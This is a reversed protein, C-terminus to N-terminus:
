SSSSEEREERSKAMLGDIIIIDDIGNLRLEESSLKMANVIHRMRNCRADHSFSNRSTEVSPQMPSHYGLSKARCGFQRFLSVDYKASSSRMWLCVRVTLAKLSDNILAFSVPISFPM